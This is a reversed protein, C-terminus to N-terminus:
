GVIHVGSRSAITRLNEMKRGLGFGGGDVICSVGDQAVAKVEEVIVDVEDFFKWQPREIGGPWPSSGLSLHEHILTAGTIQQPPLDKLLTRVIAGQPFAQAAVAQADRLATVLGVGAVTGLLGLAERRTLRDSRSERNSM